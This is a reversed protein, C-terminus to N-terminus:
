EILSTAIQQLLAAPVAVVGDSKIEGEIKLDVGIELNTARM